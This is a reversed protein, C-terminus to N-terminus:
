TNAGYKRDLFTLLSACLSILGLIIVCYRFSAIIADFQNLNGLRVNYHHLWFLFTLGSIGISLSMAFLMITSQFSAASSKYTPPLKLFASLSNVNMQISYFIGFILEILILSIINLKPNLCGFLCLSISLFIPNVLLVKEFGFKTYLKSQFPKISLSGIAIPFSLLGSDWASFGYQNQLIVPLLFGIGGSAITTLLTQVLSFRFYQLKVLSLNLIKYKFKKYLLSYIVLSVTGISFLAIVINRGILKNDISELTFNISAFGIGILVFGLWNFKPFHNERFNPVLSKICIMAFIGIPVNIFFVWHWSYYTTIYGGAIPGLIPGLFVPMTIYSTVKALEEPEYIKLIILRAVPTMIAAGIGQIGRFIALQLETTALGCLLSSLIFISVAILLINKIGFRDAMYGSAPTFIAITILYTTIATRLNIAPEHLSYAINPLSTNIITTDFLEMFVLLVVLLTLRTRRTQM